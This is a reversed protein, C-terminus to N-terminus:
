RNNNNRNSTVPRIAQIQALASSQGQLKALADEMAVFQKELRARKAELISDLSTIRQENLSIQRQLTDVASQISGDIGDTLRALLKDIEQMVGQTVLTDRDEEGTEPDTAFQEFNFLAKVADPDNALATEFKNVDFQLRAGPGITFGVQSLANYQGSLGTNAGIVANFMSARIRQVTSDGLLLGRTETEANYSDYKNLTSVAANFGTVFNQAATTVASIDDNITVQVARDSTALLNLTVGPIVDKLQNSTSTVILAEAPNASGFFVVADRARALDTQGVDIGGADFSFASTSGAEQSSLSLRFPAGPSGDNIVGAAIGVKANNIKLAVQELTDTSDIVVKREFSGDFDQGPAGAKGLLGLQKATSSGEEKIEIAQTGPGIDEILIGDGTDNVRASVLLGRSNIESLVDGITVENGQTLDVTATAGGSDRITFKGPSVGLTTLRTSETIYKFELDGTDAIGKDFTGALGLSAAGQGSVDSIVLDGGGGTTDRVRLGTGAANLSATVGAGANNIANIVDSVSQVASIDIDTSAGLANTIRITGPPAAAQLTAKPNTENGLVTTVADDITLGLQTAATSAGLNTVLLNNATSGTNDTLRLANDEISLALNGGSATDVLDIFQQVTTIADLDFDYANGARDIIRLDDDTTATTTIGTGDFLDSLQTTADLQRISQVNTGGGGNIQRLLKSNIAAILTNGAIQGDGDGDNGIIGLDAAASGNLATIAFGAGGGTTDTLVLSKGDPSIDGTVLEGTAEEIKDIVDGLTVSGGLDISFGGGGATTIQLDNTGATIGIGNGDNLTALLSDRGVRNIQTGNIVGGLSTGTIGLSTATGSTGVDTITLAGAGGSADTIVLRDSDIAALVNIGAAQNIKDIVDDITLAGTLDVVNTAGSGDRIRIFGRNIGAGGNLQSLNTKTDLRAEGREFTLVTGNPAFPSANTDLFGKTITQQSAVLQAVRFTYNGTTAGAASAATIVSEDSSFAKTKDFATGQALSNASLKLSLLNANIEQFATQQATLVSNRNVILNKPRQEIRILQDVIEAFNIGSILGVGTTIQGM